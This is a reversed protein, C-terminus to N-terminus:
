PRSSNLADAAGAAPMVQQMAHLAHLVERPILGVFNQLLIFSNVTYIIM